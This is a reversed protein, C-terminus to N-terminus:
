ARSRRALTTSPLEGFKERYRRAFHGFSSFGCSMAISIVSDEGDALLRQHAHDLRLDRLYNLPAIGRHQKFRAFVSRVSVNCATAIEEVTLPRNWNAQIYDELTKMASTSASKPEQALRDGFGTLNEFLFATSLAQTLEVLPMDLRGDTALIQALAKTIAQSRIRPSTPLAELTPMTLPGARSYGVLAWAKQRLAEEDFQTVLHQYGADYTALFSSDSPVIMTADADIQVQRGASSIRGRSSLCLMQRVGAMDSFQIEVPADYRCYHLHVAGVQVRNALAFFPSAGNATSILRAGYNGWLAEALSDRDEARLIEGPALPSPADYAAETLNLGPNLM